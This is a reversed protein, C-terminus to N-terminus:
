IKNLIKRLIELSSIKIGFEQSLEYLEKKNAKQGSKNLIECVITVPYKECYKALAISCETHGFRNNCDQVAKLPFTHGPRVFDNIQSNPNALLKITQNRDYASVGTTVNERADVSICFNTGHPNENDDIMLPLKLKQTIEATCPVCIMGKANELLFNIKEPTSYEGLLVFDGECERHEDWVIIFEGQSFSECIEIFSNYIM